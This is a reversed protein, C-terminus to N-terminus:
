KEMIRALHNRNLLNDPDCSSKLRRLRLTAEDSFSGSARVDASDSYNMYTSAQGIPDIAAYTAAVWNKSKVDSEQSRWQAAILVGFSMERLPFASTKEGELVAGGLHEILVSARDSPHDALARFVTEIEAALLSQSYRAKWYGRMPPLFEADFNSQWERFEGRFEYATFDSIFPFIESFRERAGWLCYDVRVEIRREPTRRLVVAMTLSKPCDTQLWRALSELARIPDNSHYVLSGAEFDVLPETAYKFSLVIGLGGGGGRLAWLLDEDSEIAILKRNGLLIKGGVLYDCTLGFPRALWGIGGGLTLGAVGTESVTGLPLVRNHLSLVRDVDALLAGPEATLVGAAPDYDVQRFVSFDLVVGGRCLSFGGIHHGGGRVALAIGYTKCFELVQVIAGEDMTQFIVAPRVDFARNYILRADDYGTTHPLISRGLSGILPELQQLWLAVVDELNPPGSTVIGGQLFGLSELGGQGDDHAV